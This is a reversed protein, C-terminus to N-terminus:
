PASPAISTLDFTRFPVCIDKVARSKFFVYCITVAQRISFFRVQYDEKLANLESEMRVNTQTIRQLLEQVCQLSSLIEKNICVSYSM